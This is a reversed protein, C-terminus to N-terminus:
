IRRPQATAQRALVIGALVAVRALGHLRSNNLITMGDEKPRPALM